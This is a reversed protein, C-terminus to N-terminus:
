QGGRWNWRGLRAPQFGGELEERKQQGRILASTLDGQEALHKVHEAVQLEISKRAPEPLTLTLYKLCDRLHNEKDVINFDTSRL